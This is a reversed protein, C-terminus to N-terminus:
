PSEQIPAIVSFPQRALEHGAESIIMLWPGAVLEHPESFTFLFHDALPLQNSSLALQYSFGANLSGDIGMMPPHQLTFLLQREGTFAPASIEFQFGFSLGAQLPIHRQRRLHKAKVQSLYGSATYAATIRRQQEVQFLGYDKVKLQLPPPTPAPAPQCGALLALLWLLNLHQWLSTM